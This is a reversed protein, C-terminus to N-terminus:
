DGDGGAGCEPCVDHEAGRLDYGCKICLGRKRRIVRRLTFPGLTLLWLVIAYLVTNSVFGSWIPRIPLARPVFDEWPELQLFYGESRYIPPSDGPDIKNWHSWLSRAPWGYCHVWKREIVLSDPARAVIKQFANSLEGLDSWSPVLEEPAAGHDPITLIEKRWGRTSWLLTTGPAKTEVFEWTYQGTRRFRIDMDSDFKIPNIWVACGWAVAVNVIAGLFLFVVLKTLRRKM